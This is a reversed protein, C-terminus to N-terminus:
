PAEDTLIKFRPTPATPLKIPNAFMPTEATSTPNYETCVPMTVPPSDNLGKGIVVLTTSFNNFFYSDQRALYSLLYFSCLPYLIIFLFEFFAIAAKFTDPNIPEINITKNPEDQKKNTKIQLAGLGKLALVNHSPNRPERVTINITKNGNIIRLIINVLNIFIVYLESCSLVLSELDLLTIGWGDLAGSM